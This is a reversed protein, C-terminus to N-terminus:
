TTPPTTKLSLRGSLAGGVVSCNTLDSGSRLIIGYRQTKTSQNDFCHNNSLTLNTIPTTNYPNVNIGDYATGLKGNNYILNGSVDLSDLPQYNGGTIIEIGDYGNDHIRNGSITGGGSGVYMGYFSANKITNGRASVGDSHAYIQIGYLIPNAFINHNIQTGGVPHAVVQASGFATGSGVPGVTQAVTFTTTTPVSAIYYYGNYGAPTVGAVTVAQGVTFGHAVSTTYTSVSTAWTAATITRTINTVGVFCGILSGYDYNNNFQVNQTGTNRFGAQGGNISINNSFIYAANNGTGVNDAEILFNNNQNGICINSTIVMSESSNSGSAIGIGNCGLISDSIQGFVTATGPNVALQLNGSNNSTAITFHTPDVITTVRFVGNYAVPIMGTIVIYDNVAHTHATGTTVSFTNTSYAMASIAHTNSYGCNQVLCETITVGTYDDAGLGTATTDHVNLRMLKCNKLSSANFGKKGNTNLMNSGDLEMDSIIGNTYPTTSNYTSYNDIIGFTSGSVTTIKTQFMGQGRLWVNNLPVISASTTFMGDLLDVIGGNTLANAAVMAAQIEVENGTASACTYDAPRTDGYPAVIFRSTRKVTPLAATGGLDGALQVIGKTTTTADSVSSTHSDVYGKTSADTTNVPTPVTVIGTFTPSALPAKTALDTSLNTIDSEALTIVGQRGAVSTVLNTAPDGQPGAVGIDGKPGSLFSVATMQTTAGNVNAVVISGNSTSLDVTTTYTPGM